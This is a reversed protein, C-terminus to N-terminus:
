RHTKWAGSSLEGNHQRLRRRPDVTFSNLPLPRCFSFSLFTSASTSTSFGLFFANFSFFFIRKLFPFQLGYLSLRAVSSRKLKM